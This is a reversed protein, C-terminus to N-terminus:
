IGHLAEPCTTQNKGNEASLIAAAKALKTDQATKANAKARAKLDSGKARMTKIAAAAAAKGPNDNLAAPYHWVTCGKGASALLQRHQETSLYVVEPHCDYLIFFQRHDKHHKALKDVDALCAQHFAKRGPARVKLEVYIADPDRDGRGIILDPFHMGGVNIDGVKVRPVGLTRKTRLCTADNFQLVLSHYFFCQVDEENLPRFKRSRAWDVMHQIAAALNVEYSSPRGTLGSKIRWSGALEEATRENNTGDMNDLDPMVVATAPTIPKGM